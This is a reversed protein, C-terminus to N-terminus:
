NPNLNNKTKETDATPAIVPILELRQYKVSVM